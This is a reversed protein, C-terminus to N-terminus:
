SRFSVWVDNRVFDGACETVETQVIIPEAPKREEANSRPAGWAVRGNGSGSWKFPRSKM